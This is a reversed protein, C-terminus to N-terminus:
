PEKATRNYPYKGAATSKQTRSTSLSRKKQSTTIKCHSFISEDFIFKRSNTSFFITGGKVLLRLAKTILDLITSKSTSCKIWKKRDLSRRRTSLSSITNTGAKIEDDLFKLCDESVIENNKLSSNFLFNEKGWATYTNSMDVSKTLFSRGHGRPCQVFMHLCIPQLGKTKPM